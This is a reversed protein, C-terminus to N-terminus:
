HTRMWERALKQAEAIQASTMRKAVLDRSEIASKDGDIAAINFFMHAMVYDQAVGHGIAYRVGLKYQARAYGQEAAKTYWKVAVKYDQAVGRGIDYTLGLDYQAKTHGQEAAKTYWKAAVKYDLAVGQGKAYMVGLNYQASADGQEAKARCDNVDGYENVDGYVCGGAYVSPFVAMLLVFVIAQLRKM